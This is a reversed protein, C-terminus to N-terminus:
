KSISMLYHRLDEVQDKSVKMEWGPMREQWKKENFYFRFNPKGKIRKVLNAPPQEWIARPGNGKGSAGHCQVCSSKYFKAGREARKTDLKPTIDTLKGAEAETLIYFGHSYQMQFDERLKERSSPSTCSVSLLLFLFYIM